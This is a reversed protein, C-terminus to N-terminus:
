DGGPREGRSETKGQGRGVKAFFEGGGLAQPNQHTFMVVKSAHVVAEEDHLAAHVAADRLAMANSMGGLQELAVGESLQQLTQRSQTCKWSRWDPWAAAWRKVLPAKALRGHSVANPDTALHELM